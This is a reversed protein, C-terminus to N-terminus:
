LMMPVDVLEDAVAQEGDEVGGPALNVVGIVRQGRGALDGRRHALLEAVLKPDADAEVGPGHHGAVDAAGPPELEADDAVRDVDGGADFGRGALSAVRDEDALVRAPQEDVPSHRELLPR